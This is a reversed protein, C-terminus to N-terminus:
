IKYANIFLPNPGVVDVIFLVFLCFCFWDNGVVNATEIWGCFGIEWWMWSNWNTPVYGGTKWSRHPFTGVPTFPGHPLVHTPKRLTSYFIFFFTAHAVQIKSLEFRINENQILAFSEGCQVVICCRSNLNKVLLNWEYNLSLTASYCLIPYAASFNQQEM